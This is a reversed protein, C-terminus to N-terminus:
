RIKRIEHQRLMNVYEHIAYRTTDKTALLLLLFKSLKVRSGSSWWELQLLYYYYYDWQALQLLAAVIDGEEEM